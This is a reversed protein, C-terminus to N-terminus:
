NNFLPSIPSDEYIRQIAQAFVPAVPLVTIKDIRKEEPLAITDLLVVEKIVSDQIRQIAPGSLVGHTACATVSKAGGKEMIAKAANCLTGATDIMDDVLIVDKDKVDGIINMVECVNAKQRRKDVIALPADFRAAFNRARTVSGLDPSVVVTNDRIDKFKEIFYPVLIPVGLLHDVPINFFGQIQACHLDMSLVRDAGAVTLLDAVLKASIPDRAKAKRDQRAYGMYPIVATIRGASARKFADIMILLEMMNDNVPTSTSQVVFVDSGRVSEKISVSIEGDSFTVVESQGLPKGLERAIEAAVKPNSNATFIKIDKGHINM